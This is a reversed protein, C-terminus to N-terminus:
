WKPGFLAQNLEAATKAETVRADLLELVLLTMVIAFVGDALTELRSKSM